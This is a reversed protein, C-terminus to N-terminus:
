SPAPAGTTRPRIQYVVVSGIMGCGILIWPILLTQDGRRALAWASLGIAIWMVAIIALRLRRPMGAGPQLFRLFPRFLPNERVLRRELWPCSRTFCWCAIILFITTPLGPLLVGLAGLGVCAVGLGTLLWRVPLSHRPSLKAATPLATM